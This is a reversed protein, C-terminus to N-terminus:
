SGIRLTLGGPQTLQIDNNTPGTLTAVTHIPGPTIESSFVREFIEAKVARSKSTHGLQVFIYSLAFNGFVDAAQVARSKADNLALIGNDGLQPSSPFLKKRYAEYAFGLIKATAITRGSVTVSSLALKASVSDSDIEVGIISTPTTCTLRQLTALGPFLHKAISIAVPDTIGAGQLGGSVITNTLALFQNKWKTELLTFTLHAGAHNLLETRVANLFLEYDAARQKKFKKGHFTKTECGSVAADIASTAEIPLVAYTWGESIQTESAIEDVGCIWTM